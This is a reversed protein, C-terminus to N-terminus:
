LEDEEFVPTLNMCLLAFSSKGIHLAFYNTNEEKSFICKKMCELIKSVVKM